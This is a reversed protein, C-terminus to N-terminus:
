RIVAGTEAALIHDAVRLANAGVTLSPNIGGSTPLFSADVIYLNEIGHTRNNRDTVSTAPDDGFRCTGTGHGLNLRVGRDILATRHPKLAEVMMRRFERSRQRLEEHTKYIIRVGSPAMDDLVIRNETYPLDELIGTFVKAPGFIKSSIKALAKFAFHMMPLKPLGIEQRTSEMFEFLQGPGADVGMAQVTGYKKGDKLYFDKFCLSKKPGRRDFKGLPWVAIRNDGHFMLCRGVMDHRNGLGKPWHDSASRLLIAPSFLTGAALLYRVAKLRHEAGDVEVILADVEDPSADFRLAEAGALLSAGAALAPEVFV